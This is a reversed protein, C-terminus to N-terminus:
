FKEKAKRDDPNVDPHYKRALSRYAKQIEDPTAQRSIGLLKYYDEDMQRQARDILTTCRADSKWQVPARPNAELHAAFPPAAAFQMGAVSGFPWDANM